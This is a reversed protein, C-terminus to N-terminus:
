LACSCVFIHKQAANNNREATASHSRMKKKKYTYRVTCITSGIRLSTGCNM